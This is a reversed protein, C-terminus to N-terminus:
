PAIRRVGLTLDHGGIEYSDVVEGEPSIAEYLKLALTENRIWDSYAAIAAAVQGSAQYQIEIRDAVDFDARKRLAQVRNVSERALGEAILAETLETDLAVTIGKEQGVLWGEVGESTIELDGPGLVVAEGEVDLVLEDKELYTGIQADTLARVHQNVPKMLPGLRRGLRAFNPKASREVVSSSGSIYEIAKVNVEDMIVDRVQEVDRKRV